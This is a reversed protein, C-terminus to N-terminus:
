GHRAVPPQQTRESCHMQCIRESVDKLMNWTLNKSGAMIQQGLMVIPVAIDKAPVPIARNPQGRHSMSIFFQNGQNVLNLSKENNTGHGKLEVSTLGGLGLFLGYVLYMESVTLQLAWKNRWNYEREGEAVAAEITLTPRDNRTTTEAFCLAAKGGYVKYSDGFDSRSQSRGSDTEPSPMPPAPRLERVNEIPPKEPQRCEQPPLSTLPDVKKKPMLEGGGNEEVLAELYAIANKITQSDTSQDSIIQLANAFARGERKAMGILTPTDPLPVGADIILDRTKESAGLLVLKVYERQSESGNLKNAVNSLAHCFKTSEMQSIAALGNRDPLEFGAVALLKKVEEGTTPVGHKRNATASM